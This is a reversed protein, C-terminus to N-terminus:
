QEPQGFLREVSTWSTLQAWTTRWARQESAAAWEAGPAQGSCAITKRSTRGAEAPEPLAQHTTRRDCSGRRRGHSAQAVRRNKEYRWSNLGRMGSRVDGAHVLCRMRSAGMKEVVERKKWWSNMGDGALLIRYLKDRDRFFKRRIKINRRTWWKNLQVAIDQANARMQAGFGASCRLKPEGVPCWTRLPGTEVEGSM